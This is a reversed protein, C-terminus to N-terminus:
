QLGTLKIETNFNGRLKAGFQLLIYYFTISTISALTITISKFNEFTITLAPVLQRFSSNCSSPRYNPTVDIQALSVRTKSFTYIKM